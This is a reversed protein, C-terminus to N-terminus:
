IYDNQVHMDLCSMDKRFKTAINRLNVGPGFVICIYVCRLYYIIYVHVTKAHMCAHMTAACVYFVIYASDIINHCSICGVVLVTAVAHMGKVAHM